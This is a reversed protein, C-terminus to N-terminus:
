QRPEQLAAACEHPHNTCATPRTEAASLGHSATVYTAASLCVIVALTIWARAQAQVATRVARRPDDDRAPVYEYSVPADDCFRRTTQDPAHDRM